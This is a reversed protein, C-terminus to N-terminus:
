QRDSFIRLEAQCLWTSSYECVDSGRAFGRIRTQNKRRLLRFPPHPRVMEPMIFNELVVDFARSISALRRSNIMCRHFIM